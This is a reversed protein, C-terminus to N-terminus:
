STNLTVYYCKVPMKHALIPMKSANTPFLQCININKYKLCKVVMRHADILMKQVCM